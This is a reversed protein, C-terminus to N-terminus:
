KEEKNEQKEISAPLESLLAQVKDRAATLAKIREDLREVTRALASRQDSMM